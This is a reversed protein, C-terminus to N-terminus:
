HRTQYKIFEKVRDPYNKVIFSLSLANNLIAGVAFKEEKSFLQENLSMISNHVLEQTKPNTELHGSFTDLWYALKTEIPEIEENNSSM